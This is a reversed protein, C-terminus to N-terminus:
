SVEAIRAILLATGLLGELYNGAVPVAKSVSTALELATIVKDM